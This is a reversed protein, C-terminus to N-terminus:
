AGKANREEALFAKAQANGRKALFALADDFQLDPNGSLHRAEVVLEAKRTSVEAGAVAKAAGERAMEVAKLKAEDVDGGNLELSRLLRGEVFAGREIVVAQCAIDGIVRAQAKLVVDAAQIPGEVLGDVVINEAAIKGVVKANRMVVLTTCHIEGEVQGKVEVTGEAIINGIIKMKEAITTCDGKARLM